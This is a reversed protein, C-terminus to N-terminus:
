SELAMLLFFFLPAAYVLPYIFAIIGGLGPVLLDDDEIYLANQMTQVTATGIYAASGILLGAFMAPQPPMWTLRPGLSAAIIGTALISIVGTLEVTIQDFLSRMWDNIRWRALLAQMMGQLHVMLLFFFLVGAGRQMLDMQVPWQLLLGVYSFTYVLTFVGWGIKLISHLMQPTRGYRQLGWLSLLLIYVPTFALAPTYDNFAVCIFQLPISLYGLLLLPRESQRMPVISFYEKLAQFSVFALLVLVVARSPILTSLYLLGLLSWIWPRIESRASELYRIMGGLM